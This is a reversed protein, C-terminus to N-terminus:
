VRVDVNAGLGEGPPPGSPASAAVQEIMQALAQDSQAQSKLANTAVVQQVQAAKSASWAAAIGATSAVESM